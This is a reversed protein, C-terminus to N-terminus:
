KIFIIGYHYEGASFEDTLKLGNVEALQKVKEPSIRQSVKPGFPAGSMKWDLVLLHGGLKLLRAAEKFMAEQNTSQFLVNKLVAVDISAPDIRTAGVKELDSWVTIVNELGEAVALNNVSKLATKLIDVAYVLGEKGVLKAAPLVFHGLNGCGLDAVKMGATLKLHKFVEESNILINGGSIKVM